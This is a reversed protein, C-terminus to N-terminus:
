EHCHPGETIFSKMILSSSFKQASVAWSWFKEPFHLIHDKDLLSGLRLANALRICTVQLGSGSGSNSLVVATLLLVWPVFSPVACLFAEVPPISCPCRSQRRPTRRRRQEALRQRSALSATTPPDHIPNFLRGIYPLSKSPNLLLFALFPAFSSIDNPPQFMPQHCLTCSAQASGRLRAVRGVASM